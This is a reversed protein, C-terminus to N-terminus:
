DNGGPLPVPRGNPALLQGEQGNGPPQTLEWCRLSAGPVQEQQRLCEEVDPPLDASASPVSPPRIEAPAQGTATETGCAGAGLLVAAATAFAVSTRVPQRTMRTTINM